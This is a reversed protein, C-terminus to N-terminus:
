NCSREWLPRCALISAASCMSTCFTHMHLVCWWCIILLCTCIIVYNHLNVGIVLHPISMAACGQCENASLFELQMSLHDHASHWLSHKVFKLTLWMFPPWEGATQISMSVKHEWAGTQIPHREAHLLVFCLILAAAFYDYAYKCAFM